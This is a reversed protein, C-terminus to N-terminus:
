LLSTEPISLVSFFPSVTAGLIAITLQSWALGIRNRNGASKHNVIQRILSILRGTVPKELPKLSKILGHLSFFSYVLLRATYLAGLFKM